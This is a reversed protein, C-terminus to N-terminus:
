TTASFYSMRSQPNAEQGDDGFKVIRRTSVDYGVPAAVHAM